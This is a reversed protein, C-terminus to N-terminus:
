IGVGAKRRRQYSWAADAVASVFPYFNGTAISILGPKLSNSGDIIADALLDTAMSALNALTGALVEGAQNAGEVLGYVFKRGIHRPYATPFKLLAAVGDPLPDTAGAFANSLVWAFEGVNEIVEWHDTVWEVVQVLFTEPTVDSHVSNYIHDWATNLWGGVANGVDEADQESAFQTLLHYVNQVQQGNVGLMKGTVRLIQDDTVGM